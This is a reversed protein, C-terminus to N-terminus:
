RGQQGFGVSLAWWRSRTGAGGGTSTQTSALVTSATLPESRRALGPEGKVAGRREPRITIAVPPEPPFVEAIGACFLFPWGGEQPPFGAQFVFGTLGTFAQCPREM